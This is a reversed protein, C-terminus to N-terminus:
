VTRRRAPPAGYPKPIPARIANTKRIPIRRDLNVLTKGVVVQEDKQGDIGPENNGDYIVGSPTRIKYTGKALGDFRATGTADTLEARYNGDPLWMYVYFGSVPAGTKDDRLTVHLAGGAPTPRTAADPTPPAGADIPPPSQDAPTRTDGPPAQAFQADAPPPEAPSTAVTPAPQVAPRDQPASCAALSAGAFVAARSFRGPLDLRLSPAPPLEATCFM